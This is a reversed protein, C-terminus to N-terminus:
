DFFKLPQQVEKLSDPVVVFRYGTRRITLLRQPNAPDEEIFERIWRVHVDLTRTDGVYSTKWVMEMLWKRNLTENPHRLFQELLFALKPTLRREGQKPTFISRKNRYYILEGIRIIEERTPDAPLLARIRNVLKRPTFPHELYIDADGNIPQPQAAARCHIIPVSANRRRLRSCIRTGNSRMTVADFIALDPTQQQFTELAAKSSHAIILQWGPKQLASLLSNTGASRGEILLIRSERMVNSRGTEYFFTKKLM